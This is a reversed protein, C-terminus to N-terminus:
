YYCNVKLLEVDHAAQKLRDLAAAVSSGRREEAALQECWVARYCRAYALFSAPSLRQRQHQQQQQQQAAKYVAVMHGLLADTVSGGSGSVSASATAATTGLPLLECDGIVAQAAAVQSSDSWQGHWSISCHRALSPYRQLITTLVPGGPSLCLVPHLHGRLRQTLAQTLQEQTLPQQQQQQQQQTSVTGAVAALTAAATATTTPQAAVAAAASSTATSTALSQLVTSGALESTLLATEERSLLGPMQLYNCYNFL